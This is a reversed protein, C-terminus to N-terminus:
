CHAHIHMRLRWTHKRTSVRMLPDSRHTPWQRTNKRTVWGDRGTVGCAVVKGRYEHRPIFRLSVASGHNGVGSPTEEVGRTSPHFPTKGGDAKHRPEQTFVRSARRRQVNKDHEGCTTTAQTKCGCAVPRETTGGEATSQIKRPPTDHPRHHVLPVWGSQRPPKYVM